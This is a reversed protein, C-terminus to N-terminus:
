AEGATEFLCAAFADQATEVGKFWFDFAPYFRDVAEAASNIMHASAVM